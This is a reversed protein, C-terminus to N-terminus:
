LHPHVKSAVLFGLMMVMLTHPHRSKEYPVTVENSCLHGYFPDNPSKSTRCKKLGGLVSELTSPCLNHVQPVMSVVLSGYFCYLTHLARAITGLSGLSEYKTKSLKLLDGKVNIFM